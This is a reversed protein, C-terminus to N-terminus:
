PGSTVTLLFHLSSLPLQYGSQGGLRGPKEGEEKTDQEQLDTPSHLLIAKM